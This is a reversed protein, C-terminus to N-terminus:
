YNRVTAPWATSPDGTKDSPEAVQAYLRELFATRNTFSSNAMTM